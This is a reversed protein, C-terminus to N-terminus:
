CVCFTRIVPTCKSSTVEFTLTRIDGELRFIRKHGILCGEKRFVETGQANCGTLRYALIREGQAIDEAVVAYKATKGDPVTLLFTNEDRATGEALVASFAEDKLRAFRRFQLLDTEPFLGHKDIPMGLLMNCGRGVSQLYTEFLHEGSLVTDDDEERWFWGGLWGRECDRNPLDCEAPCWVNGHTDGRNMTESLGDFSQAEFQVISSCEEDAVGRENGVWRLLSKTGEPGQFVLADPQLKKLLGAIDPGGQEPPLCGGDFWIEFVKGYWTWLETLQGIIMDNYAQQDEPTGGRVLGPDYANKYQNRAASYYLGPELGYKECADIFERVLDGKGDKYSTSKISYDHQETPWLCFGTCHKAVLVSYKAGIEAASRVWQDVDLRDPTFVNKLEEVPPIEVKHEWYDFISERTFVELDYHIIVGLECDAWRIQEMTPLVLGSM